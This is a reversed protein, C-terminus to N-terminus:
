AKPAPKKKKMPLLVEAKATAMTTGLHSAMKVDIQVVDRGEEDVIKDVVSGTM